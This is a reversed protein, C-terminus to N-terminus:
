RLGYIRDLDIGREASRAGGHHPPSLPPTRRLSRRRLLRVSLAIRAVRLTAIFSGSRQRPHGHPETRDLEVQPEAVHVGQLLLTGQYPRQDSIQSPLELETGGLHLMQIQMAPRPDPNGQDSRIPAMDDIDEVVRLPQDRCARLEFQEGRSSREGM